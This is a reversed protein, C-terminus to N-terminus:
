YCKQIINQELGAAEVYIEDFEELDTIGIGGEPNLETKDKLVIRYNFDTINSIGKQNSQSQILPKYKDYSGKPIFDGGIVGMSEDIIRFDVEGLQDNDIYLFGKM